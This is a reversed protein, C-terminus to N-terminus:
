RCEDLDIRYVRAATGHFLAAKESPSYDRVSHKLANWLPVYGCARGDNPYNTEMMCRNPGFADIVSGIHQKWAASLEQYGIPDSREIFGFGWYSMGLGGIKCYVNQNAALAKISSRWTDFVERRRDPDLNLAMPIGMHDLVV